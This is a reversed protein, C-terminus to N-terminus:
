GAAVVKTQMRENAEKKREREHCDKSTKIPERGNM